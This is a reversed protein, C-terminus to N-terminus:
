GSIRESAMQVHEQVQVTYQVLSHLRQVLFWLGCGAGLQVILKFYNWQLKEPSVGSCRFLIQYRTKNVNYFQWTYIKPKQFKTRKFVAWLFCANFRKKKLVLRVWGSAVPSSIRILLPLSCNFLNEQSNLNYAYFSPKCNVTFLALALLVHRMLGLFMLHDWSFAVM